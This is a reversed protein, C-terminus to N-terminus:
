AEDRSNKLISRLRFARYIGYSLLLLVFFWRKKGYLREDMFDTFAFAIAGTVVLLIMVAGFWVSVLRMGNQM